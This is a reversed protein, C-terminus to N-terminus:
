SKCIFKQESHLLKFRIILKHPPKRDSKFGMRRMYTNIIKLIYKYHEYINIYISLSKKHKKTVMSLVEQTNLSSM